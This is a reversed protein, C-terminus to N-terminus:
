KSMLATVKEPDVKLMNKRLSSLLPQIKFLPDYDSHNRGPLKSNDNFHLYRLIIEFRNRAMTEAIPNFRSSNEWYMRYSPAPFLGMYLLIAFFKEIEDNQIACEKGDKQMAYINSQETCQKIMEFDIFMNFYELSSHLQEPPDPFTDNFHNEPFPADKKQWKCKKTKCRKAPKSRGVPEDNDEIDSVESDEHVAHIEINDPLAVFDPDEAHFIDELEDDGDDIDSVDSIEGNPCFILEVAETLDM